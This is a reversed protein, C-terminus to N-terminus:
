VMTNVEKFHEVSKSTGLYCGIGSWPEFLNGDSFTIASEIVMDKHITEKFVVSDEIGDNFSVVMVQNRSIKQNLDDDYSLINM